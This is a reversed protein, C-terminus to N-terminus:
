NCCFSLLLDNFVEFLESCFDRELNGEGNSDFLEPYAQTIFIANFTRSITSFRKRWYNLLVSYHVQKM